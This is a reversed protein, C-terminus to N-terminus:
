DWNNDGDVDDEPDYENDSSDDSSNIVEYVDFRMFREFFIDFVKKNDDLDELISEDYDGEDYLSSTIDQRMVDYGDNKIDVELIINGTPMIVQKETDILDDFRDEIEWGYYDILFGEDDRLCIINNYGLSLHVSVTKIDNPKVFVRFIDGDEVFDYDGLEQDDDMKSFLLLDSDSLAIDSSYEHTEKETMAIYVENRLNRVRFGYFIDVFIVRGSMMHVSVSM